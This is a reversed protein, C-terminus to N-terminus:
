APHECGSTKRRAVHGLSLAGERPHRGAFLRIGLRLARYFGRAVRWAEWLRRFAGRRMLRWGYFELRLVRMLGVYVFGSSVLGAEREDRFIRPGFGRIKGYVDGCFERGVVGCM